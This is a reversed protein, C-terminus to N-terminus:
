FVIINYNYHGRELSGNFIAISMKNTLMSSQLVVNRDSGKKNVNFNISTLHLANAAEMLKFVFLCVFM